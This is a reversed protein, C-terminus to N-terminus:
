VEFDEKFIIEKMYFFFRSLTQQSVDLFFALLQHFHGHRSLEDILVVTADSAKTTYAM